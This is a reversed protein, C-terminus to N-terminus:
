FVWWPMSQDGYILMDFLAHALIAPWISGSLVRSLGLFLGAKWTLIFLHLPYVTYALYPSFFLVSKYSAHALSTIVVGIWIHRKFQSLMWGRFLVEEMIGILIAVLAFSTLHSFQFPLGAELRLEFATIYAALVGIIMWASKLHVSRPPIIPMLLEGDKAIVFSIYTIAGFSLLQLPLPHHIFFGFIGTALCVFAVKLYPHRLVPNM